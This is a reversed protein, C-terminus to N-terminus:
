FFFTKGIDILKTKETLLTFEEHQQEWDGDDVIFCM